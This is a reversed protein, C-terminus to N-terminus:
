MKPINLLLQWYNRILTLSQARQRDRGFLGVWPLTLRPLSAGLLIIKYLQAFISGHNKRFYLLKGRYLQLFMEAAVQKTSQGGYHIVRAQPVWYLPWGASKLRYCLDVEESYMFYEEDLLGVAELAERRILLCAGLLTDVPQTVEVDWRPMDYTSYLHLADLHFLRWWERRLTPFPNCSPQLSGDPNLIRAGVGGVQPHSDIYDLLVRLANDLVETDPNLLLIYRGRSERIARNNGCAFGRNEQNEILHVRPFYKRVMQASGDQSANDVVITEMLASPASQINAQVTELCRHLLDKTNWNVIIITLDM